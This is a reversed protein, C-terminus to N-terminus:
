VMKEQWFYKRLSLIENLTQGEYFMSLDIESKLNNVIKIESLRQEIQNLTPVALRGASLIISIPNIDNQIIKRGLLAAEVVTTGRGGFPDYVVDGKQTYKNIFYNPLQPKFCARYSIEQLSSGQRQKSTWFEGIIKKIKLNGFDVFEEILDQSVNAQNEFLDAQNILKKM